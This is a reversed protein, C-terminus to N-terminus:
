KIKKKNQRDAVGVVRFASLQRNSFVRVLKVDLVVVFIGEWPGKGKSSSGLVLCM